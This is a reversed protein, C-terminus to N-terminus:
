AQCVAATPSCHRNLLPVDQPLRTVFIQRYLLAFSHTLVTTFWRISTRFAHWTTSCSNQPRILGAVVSSSAHGLAQKVRSDWAQYWNNHKSALWPENVDQEWRSTDAKFGCHISLDSAVTAFLKHFTGM